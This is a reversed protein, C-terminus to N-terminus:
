IEFTLDGAETDNHDIHERLLQMAETIELICEKAESLTQFYFTFPGILLNSVTLTSVGPNLDEAGPNQKEVLIMPSLSHHRIIAKELEAFVVTIEVGYVDERFILGVTKTVNKICVRM